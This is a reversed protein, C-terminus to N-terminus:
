KNTLLRYSAWILLFAAGISGFGFGSAEIIRAGEFIDTYVGRVAVLIFTLGVIKDILLPM